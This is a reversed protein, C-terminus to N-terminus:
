RLVKIIKAVSPVGYQNIVFLMYYGPVTYNPNRPTTVYLNTGDQRVPLDQFSQEM